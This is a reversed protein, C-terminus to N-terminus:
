YLVFLKPLSSNIKMTTFKRTVQLYSLDVVLVVLASRYIDVREITNCLIFYRHWTNFMILFWNSDHLSILYLMKILTRLM